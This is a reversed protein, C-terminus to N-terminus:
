PQVEGQPLPLAHAPLLRDAKEYVRAWGVGYLRGHSQEIYRLAGVADAALDEVQELRETVPVPAPHRQELLDAARTLRAYGEDSLRPQGNGTLRLWAVLEGVEGEDLPAPQHGYRALVARAYARFAEIQYWTSGTKSYWTWALEDLEADSPQTAVSAPERSQVAPGDAAAALAARARRAIDLIDLRSDDALVAEILEVCLARDDTSM